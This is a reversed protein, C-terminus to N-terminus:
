STYVIKFLSQFHRLKWGILIIESVMKLDALDTEASPLLFFIKLKNPLPTLNIRLNTSTTSSSLTIRSTTPDALFSTTLNSWGPTTRLKEMPNLDMLFTCISTLSTKTPTLCTNLLILKMTNERGM